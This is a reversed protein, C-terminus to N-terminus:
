LADSCINDDPIHELCRREGLDFSVNQRHLSDMVAHFVESANPREGQSLQRWQGLKLQLEWNTM